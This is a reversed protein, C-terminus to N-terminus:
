NNELGQWRRLMNADIDFIDFVRTMLHDIVVIQYINDHVPMLPATIVSFSSLTLMNQLKRYHLLIEKCMLVLVYKEKATMYATKSLLNNAVSSAISATSNM